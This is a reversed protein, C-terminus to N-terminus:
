EGDFAKESYYNKPYLLHALNWIVWIFEPVTMVDNITRLPRDFFQRDPTYHVDDDMADFDDYHELVDEDDDDDEDGNGGKTAIAARAAAGQLKGRATSTIRLGSTKRRM